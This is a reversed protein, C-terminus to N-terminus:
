DEPQTMRALLNTKWVFQHVIVAGVHALILVLLVQKLIEHANGPGEAGMGWAIAGTVPLLLLVVYFAWHALTSLKQFVAPEGEVHGPVGRENRLMLRWIVLFTIMSGFVFHLIVPVSFSLEGSKLGEEFARSIGEHFIMQFAVLVVTAWHLIVQQGSYGSVSKAM